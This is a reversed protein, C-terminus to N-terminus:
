ALTSLSINMPLEEDDEISLASLWIAGPDPPEALETASRNDNLGLGALETEEVVVELRIPVVLTTRDSDVTAASALGEPLLPDSLLLPPLLGVPAGFTRM